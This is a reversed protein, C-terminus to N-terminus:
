LLHLQEDCPPARSPTREWRWRWSLATHGKLHGQLSLIERRPLPANTRTTHARPSSESERNCLALVSTFTDSRSPWGDDHLRSASELPTGKPSMDAITEPNSSNRSRVKLKTATDPQMMRRVDKVLQSVSTGVEGAGVRIVMSKPSRGGAPNAPAAGNRAGVHTRRKTRRRAM